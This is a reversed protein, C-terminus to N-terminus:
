RHVSCADGAHEVVRFRHTRHRWDSLACEPEDLDFQCRWCPIYLSRFVGLRQRDRLSRLERQASAVASTCGALYIPGVNRLYTGLLGGVRPRLRRGGNYFLNEFYVTSTPLSLQYTNGTTNFWGTVVMGGSLVPTENPYNEWLVGLTSTGSDAATFTLAQQYYNGGRIQVTIPTTRGNANVILTQAATQAKAITAFPGDTNKSNPAALTGSWSDNGNTAVFYDAGTGINM